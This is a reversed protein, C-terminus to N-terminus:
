PRISRQTSPERRDREEDREEDPRECPGADTPPPIRKPVTRSAVILAVGIVIVASAVVTRGTIPESLIAWGLFVAVVPNVYPYTSVLSLRAHSLLWAYSSFAVLSGFVILYALGALSGASVKSMDLQGAEGSVLGLVALLVGGAIMEMGASVLPRSPLSSRRAYVSGAAWCVAAGTAVAVGLPDLHGGPRGVLLALGAFGVLLGIVAARPLREGSAVRDIVAMWLPVTAIILAVTGSAIRQEAWVVGGNGGVLLAGGVVAASIWQRRGIPDAARDGRRVAWAFLVSGAVLFRTSAMLFPPITRIAIKIALYTSGWVTYLVGLCVWLLPGSMADGSGNRGAAARGPRSLQSQTVDM